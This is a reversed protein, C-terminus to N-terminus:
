ESIIDCLYDAFDSDSIENQSYSVNEVFKLYRKIDDETWALQNNVIIEYAKKCDEVTRVCITGPAFKSIYYGFMLFPKGYYQAEYGATGTITAVAMCNKLLDHSSTKEDILQVGKIKLCRDYFEKNRGFATQAPHEKVYIMVDDPLAESLIDLILVMDGYINGAQPNSTCEPAYHLPVYIYKQDFDAKVSLSNYYSILVKTPDKYRKNAYLKYYILRLVKKILDFPGQIDKLKLTVHGLDGYYRKVEIARTDFTFLMNDTNQLVKKKMNDFLVEMGPILQIQEQEYTNIECKKQNLWRDEYYMDQIFLKRPKEFDYAPLVDGMCMRINYIKCIIYLTYTPFEHPIQAFIVDTIKEDQIISNWFKLMLLYSNKRTEFSKFAEGDRNMLHLCEFDYATTGKLICDDLAHKMYKADVIGNVLDWYSFCDKFLYKGRCEATGYVAFMNNINLKKKIEAIQGPTFDSKDDSVGVIIANRLIDNTKDHNM